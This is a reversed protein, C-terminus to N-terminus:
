GRLMSHLLKIDAPTKCRSIFKSGPEGKCRIVMKMERCHTGADYQDVVIREKLQMKKEDICVLAMDITEAKVKGNCSKTKKAFDKKAQLNTKLDEGKMLESCKKGMVWESSSCSLEGRVKRAQVECEFPNRRVGKSGKSGKSEESEKTKQDDKRGAAEAVVLLMCSVAFIKNMKVGAQLVEL